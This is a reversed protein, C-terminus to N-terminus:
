SAFRGPQTSDGLVIESVEEFPNNTDIRVEGADYVGTTFLDTLDAFQLGSTDRVICVWLRANLFNPAIALVNTAHAQQSPTEDTEQIDSLVEYRIKTAWTVQKESGELEPLNHEKEFGMADALTEKNLEDLNQQGQKKFCNACVFH